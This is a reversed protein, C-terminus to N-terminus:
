LLFILHSLFIFSVCNAFSSCVKVSASEHDGEAERKPEAQLGNEGKLFFSSWFILFTIKNLLM